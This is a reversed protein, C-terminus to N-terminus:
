VPRPFHYLDVFDLVRVSEPSVLAGPGTFLAAFCQSLLVSRGFAIDSMERFTGSVELLEAKISSSYVV